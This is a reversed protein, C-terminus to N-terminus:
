QATGVEAVTRIARAYVEDEAATAQDLDQFPVLAPHDPDRASMWAVWANHVDASKIREGVALLLVAYARFLDNTDDDPLESSPVERRIATALRDLYSDGLVM